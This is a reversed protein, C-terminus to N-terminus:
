VAVLGSFITASFFLRRDELPAQDRAASEVIRVSSEDRNQDRALGLQYGVRARGLSELVQRVTDRDAPAAQRQYGLRLHGPAASQVSLSRELDARMANTNQFVPEGRQALQSIAETVVPDSLLIRREQAIWAPGVRKENSTSGDIALVATAHWMPVTLNRGLVFSLGANLVLFIAVVTAVSAARNTAWRRIMRAEGDALLEEVKLLMQRKKLVGQYQQHLSKLAHEQKCMQRHQERLLRRGRELRIRRRASQEEFQQRSQELAGRQQDLQQRQAALEATNSGFPTKDTDLEQRQETTEISLQEITQQEQDLQHAWADLHQFFRDQEEQWQNIQEIRLELQGLLDSVMDPKPAQSLRDPDKSNVITKRRDLGDDPDIPRM